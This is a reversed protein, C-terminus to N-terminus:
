KILLLINIVYNHVLKTVRHMLIMRRIKVTQKFCVNRATLLKLAAEFSSIGFAKYTNLQLKFHNTLM